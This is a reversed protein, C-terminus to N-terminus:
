TILLPLEGPYDDCINMKNWARYGSFVPFNRFMFISYILGITVRVARIAMFIPGGTHHIISEVTYLYIWMGMWFVGMEASFVPLADQYLKEASITAGRPHLLIEISGATGLANNVPFGHHTGLEVYDPPTAMIVIRNTGNVDLSSPGQPTMIATLNHTATQNDILSGSLCCDFILVMGKCTINSFLHGLEDDTIMNEYSDNSYKECDYPCIAEDRTDNANFRAEDGDLDTLATGHGCWQFLFIDNPGLTAAMSKLAATINAKTAKDNLLLTIHDSQWNKTKLLMTYTRSLQRDTYPIFKPVDHTSNNYKTCAAIIAYYSGENTTQPTITATNTQQQAAMLTSPTLLLCSLLLIILTKKM